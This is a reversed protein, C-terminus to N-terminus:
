LRGDGAYLGAFLRDDGAYPGAFLRGDGAFLGACLSGDGAFLGAIDADIPGKSLGILDPSGTVEVKNFTNLAAPNFGRKVIFRAV